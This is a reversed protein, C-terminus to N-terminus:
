ARVIRRSAHPRFRAIVNIIERNRYNKLNMSLGYALEATRVSDPLRGQEFRGDCGRLGAECALGHISVYDLDSGCIKEEKTAVMWKNISVLARGQAGADHKETQISNLRLGVALRPLVYREINCGGFQVALL